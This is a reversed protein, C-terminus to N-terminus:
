RTARRFRFFPTGPEGSRGWTGSLTDGDASLTADMTFPAGNESWQLIVHPLAATGTVWTPASLSGGFNASGTRYYGVVRTSSQSLDLQVWTDISPQIWKGTLPGDGPPLPGVGDNKCAITFGACSALVAGLVVRRFIASMYRPPQLTRNPMSIMGARGFRDTLVQTVM